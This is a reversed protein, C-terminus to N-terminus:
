PKNKSNMLEDVLADVTEDEPPPPNIPQDVRDVTVGAARLDDLFESDKPEVVVLGGLSGNHDEKWEQPGGHRVAEPGIYVGVKARMALNYDRHGEQRMRQRLTNLRRAFSNAKKRGQHDEGRFPILIRRRSGELLAAMLEGGFSEIPEKTRPSTM